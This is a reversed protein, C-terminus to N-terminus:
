SVMEGLAKLVLGKDIRKTANPADSLLGCMEEISWAHDSIGSEMAPAVRLTSHIRCFNYYLFFLCGHTPPERGKQSHM